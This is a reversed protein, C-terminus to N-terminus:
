YYRGRKLILLFLLYGTVLLLSYNYESRFLVLFGAAALPTLVLFSVIGVLREASEASFKICLLSYLAQGGDLPEVPLIHFVALLLNVAALYFLYPSRQISLVLYLFLFAMLNAAPGAVAVATDRFYSQRQQEGRVIDIGFPNLRIETPFINFFHMAFLHGCEHILTAVLGVGAVGSRDALLSFTLMALFLFTIEVRCGHITFSM